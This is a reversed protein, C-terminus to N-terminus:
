LYATRVRSTSAFSSWTLSSDGIHSRKAARRAGMFRGRNKPKIAHAVLDTPQQVAHFGALRAARHAVAGTADHLEFRAHGPGMCLSLSRGYPGVSRFLNGRTTNRDKFVHARHEVLLPDELGMYCAAMTPVDLSSCKLREDPTTIFFDSPIDLDFAVRLPEDHPLLAMRRTAGAHWLRM